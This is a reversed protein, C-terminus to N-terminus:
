VFEPDTVGDRCVKSDAGNRVIEVVDRYGAMTSDLAIRQGDIACIRAQEIAPEDGGQGMKVDISAVSLFLISRRLFISRLVLGTASVTLKRSILELSLMALFPSAAM